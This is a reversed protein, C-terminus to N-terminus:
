GRRRALVADLAQQEQAGGADIGLQAGLRHPLFVQEGARQLGGVPGVGQGLDGADLHAPAVVPLVAGAVQRHHGGVQIARAVVVVRLVAVDDRGQDALEVLGLLAVTGRHRHPACARWSPFEEVALVHRIGAHIQHVQRILAEVGQQAAAGFKEGGGCAPSPQPLPANFPSPSKMGGRTFMPTPSSRVM